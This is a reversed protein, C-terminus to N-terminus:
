PTTKPSVTVTQPKAATTVTRTQTQTVTKTETRVTVTRPPQTANTSTPVSTTSTVTETNGSGGQGILVGVLVGIIAAGAVGLIWGTRGGGEDPPPTDPEQGPPNYPAEPVAFRSLAAATALIQGLRPRTLRRRRMM